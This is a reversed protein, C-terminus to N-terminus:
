IVDQHSIRWSRVRLRAIFKNALLVGCVSVQSHTSPALLFGVSYQFADWFAFWITMPCMRKACQHTICSEGDQQGWALGILCRLDKWFVPDNLYGFEFSSRICTESPPLTPLFFSVIAWSYACLQDPLRSTRATSAKTLVTWEKASTLAHQISANTKIAGAPQNGETPSCFEAQTASLLTCVCLRDPTQQNQRAEVKIHAM